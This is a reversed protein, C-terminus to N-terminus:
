RGSDRVLCTSAEFGGQKEGMPGDNVAIVVVALSCACRM